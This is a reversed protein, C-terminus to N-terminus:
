RGNDYGIPRDQEHRESRNHPPFKEDIRRMAEERALGSLKAAAAIAAIRERTPNHPENVDVDGM